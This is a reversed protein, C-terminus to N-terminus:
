DEKTENRSQGLPALNVSLLVDDGGEVPERDEARRLDNVTAQGTNLQSQEYRAKSMLDLAYIGSIDFKYKYDMYLEPGLMKSNFEQEIEKVLPQLADTYFAINAAEASKYTSNSDDFLKSKPVGFFRAVDQITFKRSELFQMDASSMSMQNFKADGKVVFIDDGAAVREMIDNAMGQMQEDQFEGVGQTTQNNQLFGKVRGGTAFRNLTERDATAAIGLTIAAYHVTSRGWYGNNNCFNKFHLIQDATYDGSIGNVADSVHYTNRYMDYSVAFPDLLLFAKVNYSSDYKPLVFANGHLLMDSVLYKLFTYANQRENARVSLLYNIMKGQGNDYMTFYKKARNWRKLQLTMAAISSSVLDVARFVASIKMAAEASTVFQANGGYKGGTVAEKKDLSAATEGIVEHTIEAERKFIQGLRM